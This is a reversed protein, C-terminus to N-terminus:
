FPIQDLHEFSVDVKRAVAQAELVYFRQGAHQAALREAERRASDFNNHKATVRQTGEGWVMWFSLNGSM